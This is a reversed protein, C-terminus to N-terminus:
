VGAYFYVGGWLFLRMCCLILNVKRLAGKLAERSDPRPSTSSSCGSEYVETLPSGFVVRFIVVAQNVIEEGGGGMWM